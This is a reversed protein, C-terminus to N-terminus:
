LNLPLEFCQSHHRWSCNLLVANKLSNKAETQSSAFGRWPLLLTLSPGRPNGLLHQERARKGHTRRLAATPTADHIDSSLPACRDSSNFVAMVDFPWCSLSRDSEDEVAKGSEKNTQYPASREKILLRQEHKERPEYDGHHNVFVSHLWVDHHCSQDKPRLGLTDQPITFAGHQRVKLREFSDPRKLFGCVDAWEGAVAGPCWLPTSGPPM